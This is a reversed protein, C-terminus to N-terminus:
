EGQIKNKKNEELQEERDLFTLPPKQFVFAARFDNLNKVDEEYGNRQERQKLSEKEKKRNMMEGCIKIELV